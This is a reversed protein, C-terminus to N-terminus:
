RAAGDWTGKIESLQSRFRQIIPQFAASQARNTLERPDDRETFLEESADRKNHIYVFDGDAISILPGRSAPSRGHNPDIPNPAALESIVPDPAVSAANASHDRWLDALSRGPFPSRDKLGLLEVITAPLNRLSVAQRIVAHADGGILQTDALFAQSM